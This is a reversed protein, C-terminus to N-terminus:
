SWPRQCERVLIEGSVTTIELGREVELPDAGRFRNPWLHLAGSGVSYTHASEATELARRTEEPLSSLDLIPEGIRAIVGDLTIDDTIVEVRVGELQDLAALVEELNV